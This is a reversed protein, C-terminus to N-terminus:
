DCTLYARRIYKWVHMASSVSDFPLNYPDDSLAEQVEEEDEDVEDVGDM